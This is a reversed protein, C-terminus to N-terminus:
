WPAEGFGAVAMGFIVMSHAWDNRITAGRAPALGVAVLLFSYRGIHAPSLYSKLRIVTIAAIFSAVSFPIM